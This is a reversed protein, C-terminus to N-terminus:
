LPSGATRRCCSRLHCRHHRPVSSPPVYHECPEIQPVLTRVYVCDFVPSTVHVKKLWKGKLFCPLIIQQGYSMENARHSLDYCPIHAQWHQFHHIINLQGQGMKTPKPYPATM